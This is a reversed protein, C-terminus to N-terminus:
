VASVRTAGDPIDGFALKAVRNTLSVADDGKKWATVGLSITLGKGAAELMNSKELEARLKEALQMASELNTEPFVVLIGSCGWHGIIDVWRLREKLFRATEMLPAKHGSEVSSDGRAGVDLMIISLANNYRRSRSAEAGLRATVSQQTLLGTDPDTENQASPVLRLHKRKRVVEYHTVDFLCAVEFVQGPLIQAHRSIFNLWREPQSATAPLQYTEVTKFLTLIRNVPLEDRSKGIISQHRVALQLCLADNAWIIAGGGDAVFIGIPLSELIQLAVAPSIPTEPQSM